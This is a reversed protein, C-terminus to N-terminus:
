VIGCESSSYEDRMQYVKRGGLDIGSLRVTGLGCNLSGLQKSNQQKDTAWGGVQLALGSYKYGGPCPPGAIGGLVPYGNRDVKVVQM